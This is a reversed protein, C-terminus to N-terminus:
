KFLVLKRKSLFFYAMIAYEIIPILSIITQYEYFGNRNDYYIEYNESHNEYLYQVMYFSFLFQITIVIFFLSISYILLKQSDPQHSKFLFNFGSIFLVCFLFFGVIEPALIITEIDFKLVILVHLLIFSFLNGIEFVSYISFGGAGILNILNSPNKNFNLQKEFEELM